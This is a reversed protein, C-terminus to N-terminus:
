PVAVVPRGAKRASAEMLIFFAQGETSIGPKDFRPAGAVDQVFGFRDVKARVGARMRDAAALYSDPLWGGKVSEYIAYALMAAMNTEVYSKSDDPEDHFLGDPRQFVLCGDLLDKLNGVLQRRDAEREAPLARILRMLAAATWGNGGGWHSAGELLAQQDESWRHHMLKIKPDWLRRMIGQMQAIAEDHFGAAALLPAATFTEDSWVEKTAFQHFMTGDKARDAGKHAFQLMDETAKALKPDGTQRAAYVLTEGLMLPDMPSGGSAAVVGEKSVNVLSAQALAIAGQIEGAELLAQGAVGQEWSARQFGMMASMAKNVLPDARLSNALAEDGASISAASATLTSVEFVSVTCLLSM